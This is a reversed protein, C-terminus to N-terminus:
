CPGSSERFAYRFQSSLLSFVRATRDEEILLLEETGSVFGLYRM